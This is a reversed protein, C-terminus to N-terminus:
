DMRFRVVFRLTAQVPGAATRAPIFPNELAWRLAAQDLEPVGSSRFVAAKGICGTAEITAEVGVAGSLDLRRAAPPYYDSINQAGKLDIRAPSAAGAPLAPLVAPAPCPETRTRQPPAIGAAAEAESVRQALSGREDNLLRLVGEGAADLQGLVRQQEAADPRAVALAATYLGAMEGQRAEIAPAAPVAGGPRSHLGRLLDLNPVFRAQERWYEDILDGRYLQLQVATAAEDLNRRLEKDKRSQRAAEAQARLRELDAVAAATMLYQDVDQALTRGRVDPPHSDSAGSLNWVGKRLADLAADLAAVSEFTPVARV